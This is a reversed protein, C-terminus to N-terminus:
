NRKQTKNRGDLQRNPPKQSWFPPTDREETVNEVKFAVEKMRLTNRNKNVDKQDTENM